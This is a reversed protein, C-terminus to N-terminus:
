ISYYINKKIKDAFNSAPLHMWQINQINTQIKKECIFGFLYNVVSFMRNIYNPNNYSSITPLKIDFDRGNSSNPAGWRFKCLFRTIIQKKNRNSFM